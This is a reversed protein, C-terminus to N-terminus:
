FLALSVLSNIVTVMFNSFIGSLPSIPLVFLLLIIVGYDEIGRWAYRLEMPLIAEVVKFGDLPAIPLLNFIALSTNIIMIPIIIIEFFDTHFLIKIIANLVGLLIVLSLNSLPGAISTLAIGKLPDDFNNPNVPVPKSWGFRFLMLSLAGIPDMHAIPNLTLRGNVRPTPDGLRTAVLAHAYEHVSSAIFVSAIYISIILASM